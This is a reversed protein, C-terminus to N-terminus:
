RYYLAASAFINQAKDGPVNKYLNEGMRESHAMKGLVRGDPSTIGEIADVSHNPNVLIEMRPREDEGVYQTAIQGKEAMGALLEPGAVFRGEGHSIAVTHTQGLAYGQLWPSLTSSVRTTVLRSQHRGIANFTLTPCHEDTEIIEGFPVLGLKVLAQFGNCIGLMLGDRQKLLEHIADRCYPNRLFSTVFKASGEPEDGGSFGGPLAIIQANKAKEVFGKVAADIDSPKQNCIVFVDAAIGASEFARATDYECNTGPFVPILVRPRAVSPGKQRREAKFAHAKADEDSSPVLYPVVGQLTGEFAAQVESLDLAEGM